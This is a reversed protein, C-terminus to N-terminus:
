SAPPPTLESPACEDEDLQLRAWRRRPRWPRGPARSVRQLVDVEVRQGAAADDVSAVRTPPPLHDDERAPLWHLAHSAGGRAAADTTGEHVTHIEM